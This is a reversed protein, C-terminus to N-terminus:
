KSRETEPKPDALYARCQECTEDVTFRYLQGPHLILHAIECVRMETPKEPEPDPAASLTLQHRVTTFGFCDSIRNSRRGEEMAQIPQHIPPVRWDGAYPMMAHEGEHGKPRVCNTQSFCGATVVKGCFEPKKEM